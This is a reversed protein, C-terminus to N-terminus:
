VARAACVIVRRFFPSWSWRHSNSGVTLLFSLWSPHWLSFPTERKLKIAGLACVIYLQFMQSLPVLPWDSDGSKVYITGFSEKKAIGQECCVCTKSQVIYETSYPLSFM